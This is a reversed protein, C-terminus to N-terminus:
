IESQFAAAPSLTPIDSYEGKISYYIAYASLVMTGIFMTNAFTASILSPLLGSSLQTIIQFVIQGIFLTIQMLIAQMANFRIFRPVRVDRVVLFYLGLFLLFEGTLGIAPVLPLTMVNSYLWLIPMFVYILVPFQHFLVTGYIVAASM